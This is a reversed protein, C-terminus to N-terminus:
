LSLRTPKAPIRHLVTQAASILPSASITVLRAPLSRREDSDGQSTLGLFRLAGPIEQDMEWGRCRTRAVERHTAEVEQPTVEAEQPTAEVTPIVRHTVGARRTVGVRIHPRIDAAENRAQAQIVRERIVEVRGRITVEVAEWARFPAPFARGPSMAIQLPTAAVALSVVPYTATPKERHTRDARVAVAVGVEITTASLLCVIRRTRRTTLSRCCVGVEVRLTGEEM